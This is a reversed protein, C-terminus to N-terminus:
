RRWERFEGQRDFLLCHKCVLMMSLNSQLLEPPLRTVPTIVQIFWWHESHRWLNRALWRHLNHYPDMSDIIDKIKSDAMVEHYTPASWHQELDRPLKLWYGRRAEEQGFMGVALARQLALARM